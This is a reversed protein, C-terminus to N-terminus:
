RKTQCELTERQNRKWKPTAVTVRADLSVDGTELGWGGNVEVVHGHHGIHGRGSDEEPQGCGADHSVGQAEAQQPVSSYLVEGDLARASQRSLQHQHVRDLTGSRYLDIYFHALHFSPHKKPSVDRFDSEKHWRIVESFCSVSSPSINPFWKCALYQPIPRRLRSLLAIISNWLHWNILVFSVQTHDSYNLEESYPLFM